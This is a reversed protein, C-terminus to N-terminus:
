RIIVMRRTSRFGSADITYFYVGSAVQEGTESRGDWYAVRGKSLYLGAQRHGIDLRRIMQGQLNFISIVVHSEKTLQFPIWTEPNFPNPYNQLLATEKPVLDEMRLNVEIYSRVIDPTKVTHIVPESTIGETIDRFSVKLNDGLNIVDKRGLDVFAVTYRGRELQGMKAEAVDGTRLNEATVTLDSNQAIRNGDYIAGCVVFAWHTNEKSPAASISKSPANSWATGTFVVEQSELLNVIYGQGGEIPFGDGEFVEPVFPLFEDQKTDYRIVMTAGLEEAFSRATLPTKQKLPLSVMNLGEDLSLTFSSIPSPGVPTTGDLPALDKTLIADANIIFLRTIPKAQTSTSVSLLNKTLIAEENIVFLKALPVAQTPISVTSLERTSVAEENLIFLKALPVAQTPIDVSQLDRELIAEADTIKIEAAAVDILLAFASLLVFFSLFTKVTKM